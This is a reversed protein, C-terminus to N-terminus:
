SSQNCQYGCPKCDSPEPRRCSYLLKRLISLLTRARTALSSSLLSHKQVPAFYLHVPALPNRMTEQSVKAGQDGFDKQQKAGEGVWEGFSEMKPGEGM